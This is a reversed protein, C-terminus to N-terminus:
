EAGSLRFSKKGYVLFIKKADYESILKDLNKLAGIGFFVRQM